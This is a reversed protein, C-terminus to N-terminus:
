VHLSLASIYFVFAIVPEISRLLPAVSVIMKVLSAM